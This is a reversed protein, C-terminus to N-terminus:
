EAEALSVLATVVTALTPSASDVLTTPVHAFGLM